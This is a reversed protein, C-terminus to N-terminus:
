SMDRKQLHVHVYKLFLTLICAVMLAHFRNDELTGISIIGYFFSRHGTLTHFLLYSKKHYLQLHCLNILVTKYFRPYM